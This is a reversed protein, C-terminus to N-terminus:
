AAIEMVTLSGKTSGSNTANIYINGSNSRAYYVEYTLESTSAPSDLFSISLPVYSDPISFMNLQNGSGALNTGGRFISLYGTGAANRYVSTDFQVFIKSTASTPTITVLMGSASMVNTAVSRQVTDALSVVQIVSGAPMASAPVGATTLVTGAEDPLTLTRDTNSNPSAITFIGTGSADGQITVKSM